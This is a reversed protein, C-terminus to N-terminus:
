GNGAQVALRKSPGPCTFSVLQERWVVTVLMREAWSFEHRRRAAVAARQEHVMDSDKEHAGVQAIGIFRSRLRDAKNCEAFAQHAHM